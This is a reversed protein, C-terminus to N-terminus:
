SLPFPTPVWITHGNSLIYVLYQQSSEHRSTLEYILTNSHGLKGRVSFADGHRYKLLRKILNKKLM